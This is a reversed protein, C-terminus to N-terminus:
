KPVIINTLLMTMRASASCCSPRLSSPPLVPQSHISGIAEIAMRFRFRARVRLTPSQCIWLLAILDASM